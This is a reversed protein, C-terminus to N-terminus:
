KQAGSDVNLSIKGTNDVANFPKGDLITFNAGGDYAIQFSVVGPPLPDGPNRRSLQSYKGAGLTALKGLEISITDGECFYFVARSERATLCPTNIIVAM